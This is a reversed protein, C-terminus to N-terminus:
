IGDISVSSGDFCFQLGVVTGDAPAGAVLTTTSSNTPASFQLIQVAGANTAINSNAITQNPDGVVNVVTATGVGPVGVTGTGTISGTIASIFASGVAPVYGPLLGATQWNATTTTGLSTIVYVHGTTLSTTSTSTLPVIQGSFGGLYYNFNNKFKVIAFGAQPNPNTYGNTVGPTASTNMFIYEIYGNSKLSRIGLGNGNAHDVIFNAWVEKPMTVNTYLSKGNLGFGRPVSM